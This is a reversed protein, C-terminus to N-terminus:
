RKKRSKFKESFKGCHHDTLKQLIPLHFEYDDCNKSWTLSVWYLYIGLKLWLLPTTRLTVFLVHKIGETTGRSEWFLDWIGELLKTNLVWNLDVPKEKIPKRTRPVISKSLLCNNTPSLGVCQLINLLMGPRSGRSALLRGWSQQPLWFYRGVNLFM